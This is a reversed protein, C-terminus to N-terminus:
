LCSHMGTPHTGGAETAAVLRPYYGWGAEQVMFGGGRVFHCVNTFVIGKRLKTQLRNFYPDFNLMQLVVM